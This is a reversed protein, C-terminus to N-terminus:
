AMMINGLLWRIPSEFWLPFVTHFTEVFIANLTADFQFIKPIDQVLMITIVIVASTLHHGALMTVTLMNFHFIM